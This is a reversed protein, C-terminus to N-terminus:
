AELKAVKKKTWRSPKLWDLGEMVKSTKQTVPDYVFMGEMTITFIPVGCLDATERDADSPRPDSGNPHTHVIAAIDPRFSFTVSKFQNTQGQLSAQYSGDPLRLILVLGEVFSSGNRSIRWAERFERVMQPDIQGLVKQVTSAKM